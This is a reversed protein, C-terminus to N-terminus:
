AYGFEKAYSVTSEENWNEEWQSRPALEQGSLNYIRGCKCDIGHGFDGELYVTRGCDCTGADPEFVQYSRDKIGEFVVDFTGDQCSILNESPEAVKGQSDCDFSFGAWRNHSWHYDLSWKEVNSYEGRKINKLM